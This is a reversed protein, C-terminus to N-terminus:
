SGRKEGPEYKIMQFGLKELKEKLAGGKVYVIDYKATDYDFDEFLYCEEECNELAIDGHESIIFYSDSNVEELKKKKFMKYSMLQSQYFQIKVGSPGRKLVYPFEDAVEPELERMFDVVDATSELVWDNTAKRVKTFNVQILLFECALVGGLIVYSMWKRPIGSVIFLIVFTVFAFAACLALATKDYCIGTLISAADDIKQFTALVITNYLYGPYKTVLHVPKWFFLVIILLGTSMCVIKGKCKIWDKKCILGYLALYILIGCGCIAYRDYLLRDSRQTLARSSLETYIGKFFLAGVLFYGIFVAFGFVAVAKEEETFAASKLLYGRILIIFSVFIGVLALGYTTSFLTFMWSICLMIMGKISTWSFLDFYSRMDMSSVTNAKVGGVSYLANRFDGGISMDAWLLVVLLIALVGWNLSRCKGFICIVFAALLLALIVVIGRTHAMYSFVSFLVALATCLLRRLKRGEKEARMTELFLALVDWPFIGLLVDGRFYYSYLILAPVLCAAMSLLICIKENKIRLYRRGIVYAVVMVSAQLLAHICMATRYIMEPANMWKFLPAMLLPQLYKYYRGGTAAVMLSWDYGALIAGNAMTVTEDGIVPVSLQLAYAVLLIVTVIFCFIFLHYKKIKEIIHM